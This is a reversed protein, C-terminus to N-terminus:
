PASNVNGKVNVDFFEISRQMLIEYEQGVLTHGGGAYPWFTVDAGADILRDNLDESWQYPVVNDIRGHHIMVPMRVRDLYNIPSIEAYGEPSQAPTGYILALANMADRQAPWQRLAFAWNLGVDGSMAAYLIIADIEHSIVMPWQSIEGGMSHGIMGIQGPAARPLADVQAALNMIDIAYGIHFLNPGIDSGGYNRYDPMLAIYGREALWDAIRWSDVGPEYDVPRLYGHNVIITPFPGEGVPMNALGTIRLGDSYYSMEFRTFGEGVKVIDGITIGPGGYSRASLDDIRLGAFPDANNVTPTVEHTAEILPAAIEGQTPAPSATLSATFTPSAASLIPADAAEPTSVALIPQSCGALVLVLSLVVFSFNPKSHM